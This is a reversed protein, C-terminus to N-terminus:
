DSTRQSPIGVILKDLEAELEKQSPMRLMEFFADLERDTAPRPPSPKDLGLLKIRTDRLAQMRSIAALRGDADYFYGDGECSVCTTRKIRDGGCRWCKRLVFQATERLLAETLLLERELAFEELESCITGDELEVGPPLKTLAQELYDAIPGSPKPPRRNGIASNTPPKDLGLLRSRRQCLRQLRRLAALRRTPAYAYGTPGYATRAM